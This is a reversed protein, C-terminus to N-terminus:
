PRELEDHKQLAVPWAPVPNPNDTDVPITAADPAIGAFADDARLNPQWAIASRTAIGHVHFPDETLWAELTALDPARALIAGGERPQRPGSLLFHGARYHRALFDRHAALHTDVADLSQRYTLLVIFLM